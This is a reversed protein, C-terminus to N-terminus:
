KKVEGFKIDKKKEFCDEGKIIIKGNINKNWYDNECKNSCFQYPTQTGCNKCKSMKRVRMYRKCVNRAFM